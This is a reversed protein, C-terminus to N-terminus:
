FGFDSGAEELLLDSEPDLLDYSIKIDQLPIDIDTSLLAVIENFYGIFRKITELKFLKTSYEITLLISDRTEVGRLTLDFKSARRTYEYPKLTLGYVEIAETENAQPSYLNQFAFVVDFLPNKGPERQGVVCEVLEEFPYDQNEFAALTREKLERLFERLPKEGSPYNRLALTNVFMGMVGEFEQNIRGATVTGVTIDEQACLKSLLVNYIGLFLMYLTLGEKAAVRRLRATDEKELTFNIMSGEYSKVAPRPYDTPLNLVPINEGFEKLWYAQQRAEREREERSLRWGVYDKYQINLSNLERGAYLAMLDKVFINQSIGDAIIHAMDIVQFYKAPEVGGIKILKVRLLPTRSLDFPRVFNDVMEIVEEELQCGTEDYDLAFEVDDHIVQVPEEAILRFSTRLSEHRHIIKAFTQAMKGRQLDGVLVVVMTENYGISKKDMQQLFFLRKQASSQPYYEREEVAKIGSFTNKKGSGKIYDALGKITPRNFYEALPVKVDLCKHIRSTVIMAKLSDGGLEFFDDFIGVKDFGFFGQWVEALVKETDTTPAVYETKSPPREKLVVRNVVERSKENSTSEEVGQIDRTALLLNLDRTSVAVLPFDGDMVRRFVEVGEPPLIGHRIMQQSGTGFSGSLREATKVAQGVEQWADWNISVTFGSERDSRYLAFADQFANAACYGVEGVLGSLAAISSCLLFFDLERDRFIEDLVLTGMVKPAMVKESMQRTRGPIVTGDVVMASHVIGNIRGFERQAQRVVSEMQQRSSVDASLVLLKAGMEELELIKRIRDGTDDNQPSSLRSQWDERAPFPSRGVLVLRARVTKALYGALVLGVGGLGGIVLYVGEERLRSLMEEPRNLRVPAFNEVLRYNGRYAICRDPSEVFFEALLRDALKAELTSGAGSVPIDVGFCRMNPYEKPITKIPGLVTAKAPSLSDGNGVKWMGDAVVGITCEGELDDEGLAKALNILSYFGSDLIRRVWGPELEDGSSENGTLGWLHLIQGPRKGLLRLEKFLLPYHDDRQPNLIFADNGVKTFVDGGTVRIVEQNQQALRQLLVEALGGKDMFLLWCSRDPRGVERRLPWASPKWLPVYFWDAIEQKKLPMTKGIGGKLKKLFRDPYSWYRQRDFPYLPLSIRRRKEGSYLAPWDVRVGSLWLQGIKDLLFYIDSIKERHHRLLYLALQGSRKAPHQDVFLSLGRGAGVQVFLANPEKLLETIGDFFRVTQRMHTAWYAPSAAEEATIWSGTVNSIYPIQPSNRKVKSVGEQFEALIPEMLRSHNARPFNLRVCECGRQAMERELTEVAGTAGSVICLSPTNIAALSLDDTLFPKLEEQSLPVSMMAGPPTKKMLQGRLVVLTLADELSFVGSLCAAVYEGFSHGILAQPQIGWRMLLRAMCYDFIFKIPGAYIVEDIKRREREAPRRGEPQRGGEASSEKGPYLIHKVMRGMISELLDFCSDIDARFSAEARYLELGMNEYQSGQGAFMFVVARKKEGAFSLPLKQSDHSELGNVAEDLDSCLLMRRYAFARRGVQLTYAADVLDIRPNERFHHALNRSILRLATETKASLVILHYVGKQPPRRVAKPPEQLIVHANTGGIGFSNVGARRPHGDSDWPTLHTVVRFPSNEFDIKPNPEEFYPNPPILRHKLALATKILGTIGAANDLHGVNAKVSGIRCYGRKDTNFALKLAEVEIPDGLSTGTGHAEVYTISEPDVGAIKHAMRIVAVQGDVGPASYSIKRSGDNNVATGKVVAYIHDGDAMAEEIRRLVVAGAGNGFVTGGARKEFSRCHGDPSFLLGEQYLYGSKPPLTMSIGGAVSMDCEGSLLAQCALHLAVLSTSCQTEVTFSPGTLNLNHSIRTSLHDKDTLQVDAFINSDGQLAMVEWATNNSAGGYLGIAGGFAAPEYGADELAHWVCQHFIRVQPDMKEAEGPTYGFFAADFCEFDEIVGKAKVYHPDELLSPRVGAEILEQDTFFRISEVGSKLNEWFGDINSAGPFRGAMGIVAIDLGPRISNNISM